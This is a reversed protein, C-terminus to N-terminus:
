TKASDGVGSADGSAVKLLLEKIEAVEKQLDKVLLTVRDTGVDPSTKKVREAWETAEAEVKYDLQEWEEVTDEDVEGKRRNERVVLAQRQELFATIMLVPSYLVGMVYDNLRAYTEDAMWWEFPIVLFFIELLNFPAIYVNEDPARAFQLCKAAFLAMYEDTSNSNIDEYASNFLAILINLLVPTLM